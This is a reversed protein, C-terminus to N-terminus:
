LLSSFSERVLDDFESPLTGDPGAYDRLYQLLFTKEDDVGVAALARKLESLKFPPGSVGPTAAPVVVAVPEPAPEPEPESPPPPAPRVPAAEEVPAPRAASAPKGGVRSEVAIAALLVIAVCAGIQWWVLHAVGPIAAALVIAIAEAALRPGPRYFLKM